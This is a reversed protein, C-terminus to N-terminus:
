IISELKLNVLDNSYSYYNVAYSGTKFFFIHFHTTVIYVSRGIQKNVHMLLMKLRTCKGTYCAMQVKFLYLSRM